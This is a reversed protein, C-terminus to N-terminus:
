VHQSKPLHLRVPYTDACVARTHLIPYFWSVAGLWPPDQIRIQDRYPALVRMFVSIHSFETLNFQVMLWWSCLLLWKHAWHVDRTLNTKFLLKDIEMRCCLEFWYLFRLRTFAFLSTNQVSM